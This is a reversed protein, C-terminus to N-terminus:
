ALALQQGYGLPRPWQESVPLEGPGHTMVWQRSLMWGAHAVLVAGPVPPEWAQARALVDVLREGGGPAHHAFDAVWADVEAHPIHSWPKGDWAGFHMELLRADVVHQWGWRKLCRGVDRCRRLPSTCVVLPWGERGALRRIRRALRRAKRPDLALDTQGICRGEHGWPRPHRFAPCALVM